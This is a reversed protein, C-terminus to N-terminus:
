QAHGHDIASQADSALVVNRGSRRALEETLAPRTTLWDIVRPHATLTLPGSGQAREARRLLALAASAVPTFALREALSPGLRPRIIQLLGYGNIATRDFPQPLHADIVEGVMQREGKNALTPFDIVINGTIDLADLLQAVARAGNRALEAAPLHGDIDIVSMAPTLALRLTGGTFAHIGSHATDLWESWGAAEFADAEHSRLTRVPHPGATITALLTPIHEATDPEAPRALARKVLDREYIASRKIIVRLSTGISTRPPLGRLLAEEGNPLAVVPGTAPDNAILKATVISDAPLGDEDREVRLARIEGDEVLAARREGIGAEYHWEPM